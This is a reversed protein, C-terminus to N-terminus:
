EIVESGYSYDVCNEIMTDSVKTLAHYAYTYDNDEWDNLFADSVMLHGDVKFGTPFFDIAVERENYCEDSSDLMYFSILGAEVELFGQVSSEEPLQWVGVYQSLPVPTQLKVNLSSDVTITHLIDTGYEDSIDGSNSSDAAFTGNYIKPSNGAVTVTLTYDTKVSGSFYNVAVKYEGEPMRYNFTINEPGYAETNDRDLWGLSTPSIANFYAIVQGEEEDGLYSYGPELVYLDLDTETNWTLSIQVASTAVAEVALALEQVMTMEFGDAAQIQEFTLDAINGVTDNVLLPLIRITLDPLSTDLAYDESSWGSIVVTTGGEVPAEATIQYSTAMTKNVKAETRSKEYYKEANASLSRVSAISSSEADVHVFQQSGDPFEILYGAVSKGAIEPVSLDLSFSSNATVVVQSVSSIDDSSQLSLNSTDYSVPTAGQINVVQSLNDSTVAETTGVEPDPSNSSSGSGGCAVLSSAVAITLLSKKIQM